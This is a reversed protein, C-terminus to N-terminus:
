EGNKIRLELPPTTYHNLMDPQRGAPAPEIGTAEALGLIFASPHLSMGRGEAKM